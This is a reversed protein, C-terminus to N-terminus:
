DCGVEKNKIATPGRKRCQRMKRASHLVSSSSVFCECCFSERSSFSSNNIVPTKTFPLFYLIITNTPYALNLDKKEQLNEGKKKLKNKKKAWQQLRTCSWQFDPTHYIARLNPGQGELKTIQSSRFLTHQKFLGMKGRACWKVHRM